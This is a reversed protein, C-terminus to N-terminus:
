FRISLTGQFANDQTNSALQGSYSIGFRFNDTIVADFGAGVLLSNDAIPAGSVAFAAGTGAFAAGITPTTDNYAHQWGVMGHLDLYAGNAAVPLRTSARLGLQSATDDFTGSRVSLAAPGGTETFSDTSVKSYSLGAFPEVRADGIPTRGFDVGYGLEAFAQATNGQYDASLSDAFGSFAVARNASLDHWSYAAGARLALSGPGLKALTGGGYVALDYNDSDGSSSRANVKFTSQSYGASIGIRWAADPAYDFGALFGGISRTDSAISATGSTQGWGAYGEGWVTFPVGKIPAAARAADVGSAGPADFAQRLRGLVGNRVFASQDMLVSEASAYVEGSLADLAAPVTTLNLSAVPGLMASAETLGDLRSATAAQNPTIAAATFPVDSRVVDVQLATGTSRAIVALFPYTATLSGFAPASVTAFDGTVGGAATIPAFSTFGPTYGAYPTIVLTGGEIAAAGGAVIQDSAGNAGLEVFYTANPKIDVAGNVTITGISHGPSVVGSGFVTLSGYTGNGVLTGNSQVSGSITGDNSLMGTNVLNGGVTAGAANEFSGTNSVGGGIVGTNTLTGTNVVNGTVSANNQFTGGNVVSGGVTAGATNEFSGTNSVNGGIVGTNTLTGTNVINGKVSANNRFTGGNAVNGVLTAANTVSGSGTTTIPALVTGQLLASGGTVSLGNPLDAGGALTFAGGALTLGALGEVIGDFTATSSATMTTDGYVYIPLNTYFPTDFSIKDQTVLTPNLYGGSANGNAELGLYGGAADFLYNFGAMSHVGVNFLDGSGSDTMGAAYWPTFGCDSQCLYDYGKLAYGTGKFSYGVVGVGGLMDVTVVYTSDNKFKADLGGATHSIGTDMLIMTGVSTSKKTAEDTITVVGPPTQWQTGEQGAINEQKLKLYAYDGSTNAATLGAQIGTPTLIYGARVTGEDMGAIHLLANNELSPLYDPGWGNDPRGFGVGMMFYCDKGTQANTCDISGNATQAVFIPLTATAVNGAADFSGPFAITAVTWTGVATNGSTSYAITQQSTSQTFGPLLYQPIVVGQSGTDVQLTVPASNNISASVFMGTLGNAYNLSGMVPGSVFPITYSETYGDYLNWGALAAPAPGAALAFGALTGSLLCARGRRRKGAEIKERRM